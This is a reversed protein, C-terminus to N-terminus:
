ARQRRTMTAAAGVVSLVGAIPSTGVFDDFRPFLGSGGTAAHVGPNGGAISSDTTVLQSVDNVFVELTTGTVVLRFKYLTDAALSTFPSSEAIMSSSGAIRKHVSVKTLEIYTYYADGTASIRVAPGHAITADGAGTKVETWIEALQNDPFSGVARVTTHSYTSVPKLYLSSDIVWASGEVTEWAAGLTARNFNDAYTASKIAFSIGFSTQATHTFTQAGTAGPTPIVKTTFAVVQDGSNQQVTYGAPTGTISLTIGDVCCVACHVADKSTTTISPADVTTVATNANANYVPTVDYIVTAHPDQFTVAHVTWRQSSGLTFAYTAPDSAQIRRSFISVTMSVQTIEVLDETFPTSGNNDTISTTQGNASVVVIVVDGTVTGTPRAVSVATSGALNTATSSSRVSM